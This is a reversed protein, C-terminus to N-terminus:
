DLNTFHHVRLLFLEDFRFQDSDSCPQFMLEWWLPLNSQNLLLTSSTSWVGGVAFGRKEFYM